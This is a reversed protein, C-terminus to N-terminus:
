IKWCCAWSRRPTWNEASACANLRPLNASRHEPEQPFHGCNARRPGLPSKTVTGTPVELMRQYLLQCRGRQSVARADFAIYFHLARWGEAWGFPWLWRL